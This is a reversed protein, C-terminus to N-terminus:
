FFHWTDKKIAYSLKVNKYTFRLFTGPVKEPSGQLFASKISDILLFISFFTGPIKKPQAHYSLIKIFSVYFRVQCRKSNLVMALGHPSLRNTIFVHVGSRKMSPSLGRLKTQVFNRGGPQVDSIAKPL